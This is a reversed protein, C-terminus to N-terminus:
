EWFANSRLENTLYDGISDLDRFLELRTIGLSACIRLIEFKWEARIHIKTTMVKSVNHAFGTHMHVNPILVMVSQQAVVRQVSMRPTVVLPAIHEEGNVAQEAVINQLRRNDPFNRWTGDSMEPPDPYANKSIQSDFHWLAADTDRDQASECAFWLAIYPSRTWDMLRTPARHHQMLEWWALRDATQPPDVIGFRDTKEMFTRLLLTEVDRVHRDREEHVVMSEYLDFDIPGGAVAEALMARRLTSSLQWDFQGQGRYISQESGNKLIASLTEDLTPFREESNTSWSSFPV